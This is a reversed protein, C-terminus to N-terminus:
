RLRCNQQEFRMAAEATFRCRSIACFNFLGAPPMLRASGAVTIAHRRSNDAQSCQRSTYVIIRIIDVFEAQDLTPLSAGPPIEDIILAGAILPDNPSAGCRVASPVLDPTIRRLRSIIAQAEDIRDMHAYRAALVRCSHPSM